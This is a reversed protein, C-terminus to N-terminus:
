RYPSSTSKTLLFTTSHACERCIFVRMEYAAWKSFLKAVRLISFSPVVCGLFSVDWMCHLYLAARGENQWCLSFSLSLQTKEQWIGRRARTRGPGPFPRTLLQLGLWRCVSIPLSLCHCVYYQGEWKPQPLLYFSLNWFLSYLLRM